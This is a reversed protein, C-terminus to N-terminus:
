ADSEVEKKRVRTSRELVSESPKEIKDKLNDVEVRLADLDGRLADIIAMEQPVQTTATNQAVQQVTEETVEEKVLRYKEFKPADLQSFGMTKVYCYPSNEDIFTVSNGPAVPYMRADNESPIRVFGNNQIQQQPQQGQMPTPQFNNQQYYPNVPNMQGYPWQPYNNWTNYPM